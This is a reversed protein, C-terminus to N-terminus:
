DVTVTYTRRFTSVTFTKDCTGDGYDITRKRDAYGGVKTIEIIGKTRALNGSKACSFDVTIPSIIENTITRGTSSVGTLIGTVKYVNDNPDGNGFGGIWERTRDGNFIIYKGNAFTIKLNLLRRTAQLNGSSNKLIDRVEIVGEVSKGNVKYNEFTITRNATSDGLVGSYQILMKGSRTRGNLGACGTGFDITFIKNVKDNTVIACAPLAGEARAGKATIEGNYSAQAADDVENDGVATNEVISEEDTFDESKDRCGTLSAAFLIAGFAANRLSFYIWNTKM